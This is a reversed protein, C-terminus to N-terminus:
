AHRVKGYVFNAIRRVVELAPVCVAFVLAGSVAHFTGEAFKPDITNLWAASAVRLSNAGIALPIVSALLVVRMWPKKDYIYAFMVALLGLALLFRIGDCAEEVSVRHGAVDIINGSILVSFGLLRLIAGALKTAMLQLPLTLQNYFVALKPLMFLGLMWAFAWARLYTFGGLALVAGAISVLFAVAGAFLGAGAESALHMAAGAALIAFGWFSPQPELVLWTARERWVVWAMCLPVIFGHSMDEDSWWQGAM